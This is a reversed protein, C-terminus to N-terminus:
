PLIKPEKSLSSSLSELSGRAVLPFNGGQYGFVGPESSIFVWGERVNFPIRIRTQPSGLRFLACTRAPPVPLDTFSILSGDLQSSNISFAPYRGSFSNTM